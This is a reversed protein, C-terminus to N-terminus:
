PHRILPLYLPYRAPKLDLGNHAYTRQNVDAALVVLGTLQNVTQKTSSPDRFTTYVGTADVLFPTGCNGGPFDGLTALSAPPAPLNLVKYCLQSGQPEGAVFLYVQNDDARSPDAENLLLLPRSDNDAVTSATRFMFTGDSDRALLGILPSLPATPTMEDNGTKVAAFLQGAANVQLAKLSLHDDALQGPMVGAQLTWGTPLTPTSDAHWAFNLRQTLQNSWLLGVKPGGQDSFAVIAALDDATVHGEVALDGGAIAGLTTLDLPTGWNTDSVLPPHQADVTTANVFVKYATPDRQVVRSVYTVWLRGTSDKTLVLAETKDHNVTVPFGSDLTYTHTDAAYRYRYLRAYNTPNDTDSPNLQAVHSAVYLRQNVADWLTDARSTPREDLAVATDEWTQSTENLRYIHYQNATANFLSGWWFGDHWWLKSEPKAETPTRGVSGVTPGYFADVYGAGPSPLPQAARASPPLSNLLCLLLGVARGVVGVPALHGHGIPWVKM